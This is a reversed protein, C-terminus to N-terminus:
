RHSEQEGVGETPRIPLGDYLRFRECLSTFASEREPTPQGGFNLFVKLAAAGHTDFFQVSLTRGGDMHSPKIVAFVSALERWRIHLDLSSTQVNFFEGWTSFGGFQGAVECTVSGNSVIVTVQGLEELAAFLEQWRSGDLECSREAPLARIVEAEPVGLQRAMQITMQAPSNRVATRIREVQDASLSTSM